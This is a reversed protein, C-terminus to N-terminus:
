EWKYYIVTYVGDSPYTHKIYDGSNAVHSSSSGDGWFIHWYGASMLLSATKGSATLEAKRWRTPDTIQVAKPDLELLNCNLGVAAGASKTMQAKATSMLYTGYWSDGGSIGPHSVSLTVCHPTNTKGGILDDLLWKAHDMHAPCSFQIELTSSEESNSTAGNTSSAHVDTTASKSRSVVLDFTPIDVGDIALNVGSPPMAGQVAVFNLQVSVPVFAGWNSSAEQYFGVTPLSVAPFISCTIRGDGDSPADATTEYWDGTIDNSCDHLLGAILDVDPFTGDEAPMADVLFELIASGTVMHLSDTMASVQSSQQRYVGYLASIVADSGEETHDNVAVGLNNYIKVDKTYGHNKFYYKIRGVISDFASEAISM